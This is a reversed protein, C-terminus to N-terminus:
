KSALSEIQLNYEEKSINNNALLSNLGAIYEKKIQSSSLTKDFLKIEDVVGSSLEVADRGLSMISLYTGNRDDLFNIFDTTLPVANVFVKAKSQGNEKKWTMVIHTWEKSYNTSGILTSPNGKSFTGAKHIYTRTNADSRLIYGYSVPNKVWVSISSEVGSIFMDVVLHNTGDFELCKKNVCESGERLIPGDYATGNNGGGLTM